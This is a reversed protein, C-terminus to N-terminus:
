TGSRNESSNGGQEIIADRWSITSERGTGDVSHSGANGDWEREATLLCSGKGTGDGPVVWFKKRRRRALCYRGTGVSAKPVACARPFFPLMISTLFDFDHETPYACVM